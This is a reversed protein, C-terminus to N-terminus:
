YITWTVRCLSSIYYYPMGRPHLWPPRRDGEEESQDPTGPSCKRCVDMNALVKEVGDQETADRRLVVACPYRGKGTRHQGPNITLTSLCSPFPVRGSAVVLRRSHSRGDVCAHRSWWSPGPHLTAPSVHQPGRAPRSGRNHSAGRGNHPPLPGYVSQGRSICRPHISSQNRGSSVLSVTLLVDSDDECYFLCSEGQFRGHFGGRRRM